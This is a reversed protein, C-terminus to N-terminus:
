GRANRGELFRAFETQCDGNLFWGRIWGDVDEALPLYGESQQHGDGPSVNTKRSGSRRNKISADLAPREGVYRDRSGGRQSSEASQTRSEYRAMEEIRHLGESPTEVNTECSATLCFCQEIADSPDGRGLERVQVIHSDEGFLCEQRVVANRREEKKRLFNARREAKRQRKEDEVVNGEAVGSRQVVGVVAECASTQERANEAMRQARMIKRM